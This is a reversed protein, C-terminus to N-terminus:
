LNVHALRRPVLTSKGGLRLLLLLLLLLLLARLLMLLMRHVFWELRRVLERPQVVVQRACTHTGPRAACTIVGQECVARRADRM